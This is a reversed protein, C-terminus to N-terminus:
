PSQTSEAGALLYFRQGQVDQVVITLGAGGQRAWVQRSAEALQESLLAEAQQDPFLGLRTWLVGQRLLELRAQDAEVPGLTALQQGYGNILDTYAKALAVALEERAEEWEPVLSVGYGRGAVRYKITLWAVQDHLLPLRDATSLTDATAYWADRAADEARLARGLAESLSARGAPAVSFWRAAMAAAAAQREALAATVEPPLVVAGRLAPLLQQPPTVSIGSGSAYLDLKSRLTAALQQEGLADYAGVVQVLLSRRQAPLLSLSYRAINEAQALALPAVWRQSLEAYGRAVQLSVDARALDGLTPGLAALDLAAQYCVESRGPDRSRYNAALLLWHGSRANDPLLVSYALTAYATELEGADLAARIVRDDGEGALTLVALDAAVADPAVLAIPDRWGTTPAPERSTLFYVALLALGVLMLLVAAAGLLLPLRRSAPLRKM